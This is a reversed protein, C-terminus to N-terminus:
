KKKTWQQDLLKKTKLNFASDFIQETKEVELHYVFSIIEDDGNFKKDNNSDKHAQILIENTKYREWHILNLNDPSVQKFNRGSLDSVFLYVPDDSTLKGDQNYDTKTLTYYILRDNKDNRQGSPDDEENETHIANILMKLSDSLLRTEKTETNFFAINWYAYASERGYESSKLGKETEELEELRLPYLVWDSSDPITPTNFQLHIAGYRDSEQVGSAPLPDSSEPAKEKCAFLGITFFTLSLLKNM